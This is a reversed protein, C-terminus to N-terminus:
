SGPYIPPAERPWEGRDFRRGNYTELYAGPDGSGDSAVADGDWYIERSDSVNSHRDAYSWRGMAGFASGGSYNKTGAAVAQPTLNPGALQLKNFADIMSYYIYPMNEVDEDKGGAARWARFAEGNRDNMKPGGFQSMGFLHGDVERPDCERAVSEYDTWGIGVTFWEPFYNQAAARLTLAKMAVFDSALVITTVGAAKFRGIAVNVRQGITAPNLEYDVRESIEFGWKTRGDEEITDGLVAYASSEPVFMGFKRSRDQFNQGPAEEDGAWTAKRRALRKGIYEAADHGIDDSAPLVGGWVYPHWKRFSQEPFFLPGTPVFLGEDAACESFPGSTGAPGWPIVGFVDMAAIEKADKCAADEGKENLEDFTNGSGEYVEFEVKRGYLEFMQNFYPTFLKVADNWKKPDGLGQQSAIPGVVADDALKRVVFKITDKTVGRYTAGGNSGVFKPLCATAYESWPLQRVGPRCAFGGRTPGTARIIPSGTGGSTSGLGQSPSSTGGPGGLVSPTAWPAGPEGAFPAAANPTLAGGPASLTPAVSPFLTAVLALLAGGAYLPLYHQRHFSLKEGTKM